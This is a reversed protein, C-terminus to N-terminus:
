ADESRVYPTSDEPKFVISNEFRPCYDVFKDSYVVYVLNCGYKM